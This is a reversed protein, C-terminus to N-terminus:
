HRKLSLTACNLGYDHRETDSYVSNSFIEAKKKEKRKILWLLSKPQDLGFLSIQGQSSFCLIHKLSLYLHTENWYSGPRAQWDCFFVASLCSQTNQKFKNAATSVVVIPILQVSLNLIETVGDKRWLFPDNICCLLWATDSTLSIGPGVNLEATKWFPQAAAAVVTIFIVVVVVVVSCMM